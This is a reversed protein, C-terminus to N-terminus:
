AQVLCMCSKLYIKTIKMEILKYVSLLRECVWMWVFCLDFTMCHSICLYYIVLIKWNSYSHNMSIKSSINGNKGFNILDNMVVNKKTGNYLLSWLPIAKLMVERGLTTDLCVLVVECVLLSFKINADFWQLM